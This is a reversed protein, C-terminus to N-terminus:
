KKAKQRRLIVIGVMAIAAVGISLLLITGVGLATAPKAETEDLVPAEALPTETPVPSASVASADEGRAEALIADLEQQSIQQISYGNWETEGNPAWENAYAATYYLTPYPIIKGNPDYLRTIFSKGDPTKETEGFLSRGISIPTGQTFVLKRVNECYRFAGNEIILLDSHFVLTNLLDCKHFAQDEVLRLSPAFEVTQFSNCGRFSNGYITDLQMNQFSPTELRICADFAAVGIEQVNPGFDVYTLSTCGSFAGIGISTVKSPLVISELSDCNNFCSEGICVVGKPITITRLASCDNFAYMGLYEIDSPLDDIVSRMQNQKMNAAGFLTNTAKNVVWGNDIVYTQNGEEVTTDSPSYNYIYDNIAIDTVDKGIIVRDVNSVPIEHSADSLVEEYYLFNALGQNSLITLEGDQYTWGDGQEFDGEALAFSSTFLVLIIIASLITKRM